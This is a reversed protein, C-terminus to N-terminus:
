QLLRLLFLIPPVLTTVIPAMLLWWFLVSWSLWAFYQHQQSILYPIFLSLPYSLLVGINKPQAATLSLGPVLWMRGGLFTFHSLSIKGSWPLPQLPFTILTPLSCLPNGRQAVHLSLLCFISSFSPHPLCVCILLSLSWWLNSPSFPRRGWSELSTGTCLWRTVCSERDGHVDYDVSITGKLNHLACSTCSFM